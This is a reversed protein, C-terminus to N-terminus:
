GVRLPLTLEFKTKQPCSQKYDLRSLEFKAIDLEGGWERGNRTRGTVMHCVEICSTAWHQCELVLVQSDFM